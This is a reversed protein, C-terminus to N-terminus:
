RKNRRFNASDFCGTRPDDESKKASQRLAPDEKASALVTNKVQKSADDAKRAIEEVQEALKNQKEAFPALEAKIAAGILAAFDVPADTKAVAALETTKDV